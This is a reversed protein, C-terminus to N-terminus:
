ASDNSALDLLEEETMTLDNQVYTAEGSEGDLVRFIFSRLGNANVQEIFADVAGLPEDANVEFTLRVQYRFDQAILLAPDVPEPHETLETVESSPTSTM